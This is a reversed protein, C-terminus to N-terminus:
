SKEKPNIKIPTWNPRDQATQPRGPKCKNGCRRYNSNNDNGFECTNCCYPGVRKGGGDEGHTKM